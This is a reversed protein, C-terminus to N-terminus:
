ANRFEKELEDTSIQIPSVGHKSLVDFFEGRTLGLLVSAQGQSLRGEEFWRVVAAERLEQPLKEPSIDIAKIAEEPFEVTVHRTMAVFSNRVDAGDFSYTSLSEGAGM